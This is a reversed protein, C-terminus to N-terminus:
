QAASRLYGAPEFRQVIDGHREPWQRMADSRGDFVSSFFALALERTAAKVKPNLAAGGTGARDTFMSHSGDRFVALVKSASGTASFVDVRDSAASFYGPIRIEDGTATIHLTPIRIPSLVDGLRSEGYFPPASIVVAAQVRPDRFSVLRGEREVQAGAVLLTTNAGYSHGAAVIRAADLRPAFESALVQDLAFRVDRARDMAESEQAAQQLRSVMGFPNGFWVNRDSGVHQVHLSAYGNAAWHRGLYSYGERSGGIGHSFVILPVPGEAAAPLYLKAPITRGRAADQWGLYQETYLEPATAALTQPQTSAAPTAAAGPAFRASASSSSSCGGLGAVSALAALLLAPVAAPRLRPTRM